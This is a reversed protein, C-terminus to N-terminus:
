DSGAAAGGTAGLARAIYSRTVPDLTRLGGDIGTLARVVAPNTSTVAKGVAKEGLKKLAMATLGSVPELVTAATVAGDGVHLSRALVDGLGRGNAPGLAEGAITALEQFPAEDRLFANKFRGTKVAQLMQRPSVAGTDNSLSVMKEAAKLNSWQKNAQAFSAAQEPTMADTLAKNVKGVLQGATKKETASATTSQAVAKLESALEQLMRGSVPAGKEAAEAINAAAQRVTSDTAIGKTLPNNTSKVIAAVDGALPGPLTVAINTADDLAHGIVPRAANLLDTDIAGKWGQVGLGQAVKDTLVRDVGERMGIVSSNEPVATALARGSNTLMAASPEIGEARLANALAQREAVVAPSRSAGAVASGLAKGVLPVAGAGVGSLAADVAVNRAREGNHTTPRLAGTAGGAAVQGAIMAPVSAGGTALGAVIAPAAQVALRGTAGGATEDLARREPDAQRRMAEQRLAQEQDPSAVIQRAALAADSVTNGAGQAANQLFNQGAIKRRAAVERAASEGGLKEVIQEATYGKVVAQRITKDLTPESRLKSVVSEYSDGSALLQTVTDNVQGVTLGGGSGTDIKSAIKDVYAKNVEHNKPSVKDPTPVTGDVQFRANHAGGNYHSLAARINGGYQQSLDSLYDATGRLSDWPNTVDVNYQKATAPMFQTLGRAGVPSVADANGGSEANALARLTGRPLGRDDELLATVQDFKPHDFISM